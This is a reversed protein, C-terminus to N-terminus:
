LDGDVGVFGAGIQLARAEGGPFQLLVVDGDGDNGVVHGPMEEVTAADGGDDDAGVADGGVAVHGVLDAGVGNGHQGFLVVDGEVDGCRERGQIEDQGCAIGDGNLLAAGRFDRMQLAHGDGG